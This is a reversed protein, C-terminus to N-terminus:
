PLYMVAEIRQKIPHNREFFGKYEELSNYPGQLGTITRYPTGYDTIYLKGDKKFSCVYHNNVHPRILIVVITAQYSPDIRNLTEKVFYAADIYIGSRFRFTEEATRPPPLTGAFKRFRDADFSFVKEMWGVVDQYSKWESVTEPYTKMPSLRVSPLELSPPRTLPSAPATEAPPRTPSPRQRHIIVQSKACACLLLGCLPLIICRLRTMHRPQDEM